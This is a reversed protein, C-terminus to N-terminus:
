LNILVRAERLTAAGGTVDGHDAAWLAAEVSRAVAWLV